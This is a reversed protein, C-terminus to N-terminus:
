ASRISMAMDIAARLDDLNDLVCNTPLQVNGIVNAPDALWDIRRKDARLAANEATLKEIRFNLEAIIETM